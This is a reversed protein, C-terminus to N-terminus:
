APDPQPQQAPQQGWRHPLLEAIRSHPWGSALKKLVDTLWALPDVDNLACTRMFSFLTAARIGGEDSGVFLSNRRTLAISRMQQECLNNDLGIRGDELFRTLAEWHNVFYQCARGFDSRPTDRGANKDLWKRLREVIPRSHRRRLALREEPSLGKHTAAEEVRYLQAILAIPRAVREDRGLLDVFGRRAHALCGIETGNAAKGNYLRDFSNSADAQIYGTRGALYKWPGHQAEANVAYRFVCLRGDGIYCWMSGMRKGDPADRDLVAIGTADTQVLFADRLEAWLAELLPQLENSVLAIWGGLTSDSIRAGMRALAGSLRYLPMSDAYKAVAVHALLHPGALCREFVGDPAPGTVVRDKCTSCARTEREYRVVEFRVPILELVERTEHGIVTRENECTPCVREAEPVALPVVRRPLSEPLSQRGRKKRRAGQREREAEELMADIAPDSISDDEAAGDETAPAEAALEGADGLGALLLRLQSPDVKESKNLRRLARELETKTAHAVFATLMELAKEVADEAQGAEVMSRLQQRLPAVQKETLAAIDVNSTV